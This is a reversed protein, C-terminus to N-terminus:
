VGYSRLVEKVQEKSDIVYVAFGLDQLKCHIAQQLPRARVGPRKLEAFFIKGGPLLVIRDPVGSVGPSIFKLAWGGARKTQSVLYREITSEQM